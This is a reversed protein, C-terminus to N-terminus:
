KMNRTVNDPVPDINSYRFQHGRATEGVPLLECNNGTVEMYGLAALGKQMRTKTPIVGTMQHEVGELDVIAETLFMLGGCEAYVAGGNTVFSRVSEKAAQNSALQAAYLEPYGGGFYLGHLGCPV